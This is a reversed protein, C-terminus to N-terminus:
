RIGGDIISLIKKTPRELDRFTTRQGGLPYIATWSNQTSQDLVAAPNEGGTRLRSIEAMILDAAHETIFARKKNRMAVYADWEPMPWWAPFETGAFRPQAPKKARPVTKVSLAALAILRQVGGNEALFSRM